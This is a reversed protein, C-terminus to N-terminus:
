ATTILQKMFEILETEKIIINEAHEKMPPSNQVWIQNFHDYSCALQGNMYDILEQLNDAGEEVKFDKEYHPFPREVWQHLTYFYTGDSYDQRHLRRYENEFLVANGTIRMFDTKIGVLKWYVNLEPNNCDTELPMLSDGFCLYLKDDLLYYNTSYSNSKQLVWERNSNRQYEEVIPINFRNGFRDFLKKHIEPNDLNLWETTANM